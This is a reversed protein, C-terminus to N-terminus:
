QRERPFSPLGDVIPDSKCGSIGFPVWREIEGTRRYGLVGEVVSM